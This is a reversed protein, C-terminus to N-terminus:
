SRSRTKTVTLVFVAAAEGDRFLVQTIANLTAGSRYLDDFLLIKRGSVKRKYAKFANKMLKLREAYDEVSKMQGTKKAKTVCDECLEVDIEKSLARALSIVPKSARTEDSPPVPILLDIRPNWRKLFAATAEVIASIASRENEYKLDHLLKGIPSYTTDFEPHGYENYGLFEASLTHLDLAFGKRWKGTLQIPNTKVM